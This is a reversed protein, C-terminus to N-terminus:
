GVAARRIRAELLPVALLSLLAVLALAYFLMLQGGIPLALLAFSSVLLSDLAVLVAWAARSGRVALVGLLTAVVLWSTPVPGPDGPLHSVGSAAAVCAAWALFLVPSRLM